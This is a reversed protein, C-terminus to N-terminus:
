AAIQQQHPGPAERPYIAPRGSDYTRTLLRIFERDSLPDSPVAFTIGRARLDATFIDFVREHTLDDKHEFVLKMEAMDAYISATWHLMLRTEQASVREIVRNGTTIQWGDATAPDASWLSEFALGEPMRKDMPGCAEGRHYMMENQTVVGRNWAPMALRKPEAKPGDPWYTLGGGISGKYFYAIVQAKKTIWHRFLGSKGMTNQLWIPSNRGNIGRFSVGDLHAPDVNASSGQIIFNMSEPTAYEADWYSRVRAMNESSFFIDDLDPYHCVGNSGFYGRFNPTLFMEFTPTVGEPLDGSGTAVVEEASAFHQALVMKFPGNRRIVDVMRQHQDDSYVADIIRPEAVPRIIFTGSDTM